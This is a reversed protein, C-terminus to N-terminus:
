EERNRKLYDELEKNCKALATQEIDPRLGQIQYQGLEKIIRKFGSLVDEIDQSNPVTIQADTTPKFKALAVVSGPDHTGGWIVFWHRRNMMAIFEDIMELNKFGYVYRVATSGTKINTLQVIASTFQNDHWASRTLTKWEEKTRLKGKMLEEWRFFKTSTNGIIKFYVYIGDHEQHLVTGETGASVEQNIGEFLYVATDAAFKTRLKEIDKFDM